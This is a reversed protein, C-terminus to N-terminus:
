NAERVFHPIVVILFHSVCYRLWHRRDMALLEVIALRNGDSRCEVQSIRSSATILVLFSGGDLIAGNRGMIGVREGAQIEFSLGDLINEDVDYAKVLDKVVLDIM